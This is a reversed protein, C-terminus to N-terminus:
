DKEAEYGRSGGQKGTWFAGGYIEFCHYKGKLPRYVM